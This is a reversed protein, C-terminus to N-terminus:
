SGCGRREVEHSRWSDFSCREEGVEDAGASVENGMAGAHVLWSCRGEEGGEGGAAVEFVVVSCSYREEGDRRLM